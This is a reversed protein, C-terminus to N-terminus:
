AGASLIKSIITVIGTVVIVVVALVAALLLAVFVWDRATSRRQAGAHKRLLAYNQANSKFWVSFLDGVVPISGVVTNVLVNMAMRALVIKPVGYRASQAIVLASVFATATDGLGPLLGLLPDLGFRIRTGPISFATDMLRAVFAVLPDEGQVLPPRSVEHPIVEVDIERAKM